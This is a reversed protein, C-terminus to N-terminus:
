LLKDMEEYLKICNNIAQIFLKSHQDHNIKIYCTDGTTDDAYYSVYKINGNTINYIEYTILSGLTYSENDIKYIHMDGERYYSTIPISNDNNIDPMLNELFSDYTKKTNVLLKILTTCCLKLLRRAPINGNTRITLRYKNHYKSFSNDDKKDIEEYSFGASLCFPYYSKPISEIIRNNKFEISKGANLLTIQSTPNFFPHINWKKFLDRGTIIIAYDTNNEITIDPLVPLNIMQNISLTNITKSVKVDIIYLDTSQITSILCKGPVDRLLARRLGNVYPTSANIIVSIEEPTFVLGIEDCVKKTIIQHEKIDTILKSNSASSSSKSSSAM